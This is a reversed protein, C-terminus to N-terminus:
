SRLLILATGELLLTFHKLNRTYLPLNLRRSPAAILCDFADPGHSLYYTELQQMAWYMDAADLASMLFQGMLQKVKAQDTKNEAGEMVELWSIPTIALRLHTVSQLWAVAPSYGRYIDVVISTDLFGDM